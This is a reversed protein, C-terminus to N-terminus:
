LSEMGHMKLVEDIIEQAPRMDINAGTCLDFYEDFNMFKLQKLYMYPLLSVWQERIEKRQMQKSAHVCLECFEEFPMQMVYEMSGYRRLLLDTLAVSDFRGLVQFFKVM